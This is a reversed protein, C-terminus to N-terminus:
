LNDKENTKELLMKNLEDKIPEVVPPFGNLQRWIEKLIITNNLRIYAKAHVGLRLIEQSPWPSDPIVLVRFKGGSSSAPDVLYVKGKFTGIAVSPWGAIQIAPWGEFQLQVTQGKKVMSADNGDIWIEAAPSTVDPTFIAIPSGAKLLQGREGPLIRTVTGDRPAVIRQTSQRSLQTETKMLQSINKSYEVSHKSFEIKAKEYDKRSSLGEELLRKQRDFDLKSTEMMLKASSLASTAANKDKELREMYSSDNDVLDAIIDGQKVRVGEKVHWEKIFGAIPATISQTRENPNIASVHGKGVTFSIWPFFLLAVFLFVIVKQKKAQVFDLPLHPHILKKRNM